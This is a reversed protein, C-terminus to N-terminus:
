LLSPQEPPRYQKLAYRADDDLKYNQTEDLPVWVASVIEIRPLKLKPKESLALVYFDAIYHLGYSTNVRQGLEHLGSETTQIGTEEYLERVASSNSTENKANGGGPLSWEAHTGLWGQVLLVEDGAVVLVRSRRGSFKFYVFWVPWLLWFLGTGIWGWIRRM